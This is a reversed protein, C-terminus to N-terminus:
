TFVDAPTNYISNVRQMYSAYPEVEEVDEPPPTKSPSSQSRWAHRFRILWKQAFYIFGVFVAFLVLFVIVVLTIKGPSSPGHHDETTTLDLIQEEKWYVHSVACTLNEADSDNTLEMRSEVTYSGDSGLQTKVEPAFSSNRLNRWVVSAAPRGRQAKCVAVRKGGQRELWASLSPQVSVSVRFEIADGGGKHSAECKYVGEDDTSINPIHLYSQASSTNQLSKGDNCSNQVPGGADSNLRCRRNKLAIKWIIYNMEHWTGNSCTLNVHSGLNFTENRTVYVEISSATTTNSTVSTIPNIGLDSWVAAVFLLIIGYIWMTERM